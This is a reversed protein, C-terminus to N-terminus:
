QIFAFIHGYWRVPKTRGSDKRLVLAFLVMRLVQFLFMSRWIHHFSRSLFQLSISLFSLSIAYSVLMPKILRDTLLTGELLLVIPHVLLSLGLYLGPNQASLIAASSTKAVSATSATTTFLFNSFWLFLAQSLQSNMLGIMVSIVLLRKWITPRNEGASPLFSQVTQSIGDGFCTLVFFCSDLINHTALAVVGFQSAAVTTVGYSVLMATNVISLPGALSALRKFEKPSPLSFLKRKQRIKENEAQWGTSIQTSMNLSAKADASDKLLSDHQLNTYQKEKYRWTKMQKAVFRLLLVSSVASAVATAIAAGQIGTRPVLYYDGVVNLGFAVLMAIIAARPKTTVLCIAQATMGLISLPLVSARIAVYEWAADVIGAASGSSSSLVMRQLIPKGFIYVFTMLFAGCCAAVGLVNSTIRQLQRYYKDLRQTHTKDALAHSLEHTAAMCLFYNGYVVFDCLSTAPGLAAVQLLSGSAVMASTDILGQISESIWILVTAMVYLILRTYSVVPTSQSRSQPLQSTGGNESSTQPTDSPFLETEEVPYERKNSADENNNDRIMGRSSTTLRRSSHHPLFVPKTLRHRFDYHNPAYGHAVRSVSMVMMLISVVVSNWATCKLLSSRRCLSRGMAERKRSVNSRPHKEEFMEMANYQAAPPRRSPHGSPQRIVVSELASHRCLSCFFILWM